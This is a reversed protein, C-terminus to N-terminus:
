NNKELTRMDKLYRVTAQNVLHSIDIHLIDEQLWIDSVVFIPGKELYGVLEKQQAFYSLKDNIAMELSKLSNRNLDKVKIQYEFAMVGKGWVDSIVHSNPVDSFDMGLEQLCYALAEDTIKKSAAQVVLLAKKRRYRQYLLSFAGIVIVGLLIYIIKM